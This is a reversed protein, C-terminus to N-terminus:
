TTAPEDAPASDAPKTTFRFPPVPKGAIYDASAKRYEEVFYAWGDIAPVQTAFPIRSKVMGPFPADPRADLTYYIVPKVVTRARKVPGKPTPIDDYVKETEQRVTRQLAISVELLPHLRKWMGDSMTFEWQMTVADEGQPVKSQTAHATLWVGYGCSRLADILDIVTDFAAAYASKAFLQRFSTPPPADSSWLNLTKANEVVYGQMLRTLTVLSDLFIVRPRPLDERALRALEEATELVWRGDLKRPKGNHIPTGTSPDIQPWSVAKAHPNTISSLDLNMHFADACSTCLYSKGANPESFLLGTISNLDLAFTQRSGGLNGWSPPQGHAYTQVPSM